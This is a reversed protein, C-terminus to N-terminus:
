IVPTDDPESRSRQWDSGTHQQGCGDADAVKMCATGSPKWVPELISQMIRPAYVEQRMRDLIHDLVNNRRLASASARNLQEQETVDVAVGRTGCHRGDEDTMPVVTLAMCLPDQSQRRLWTHRRHQPTTLTFVDPGDADLLVTHAPQGLLDEASWGLIHEPAIFTFCGSQDTEFLIDAAIAGFQRWRQRSEILARHLDEHRAPNSNVDAAVDTTDSAGSM